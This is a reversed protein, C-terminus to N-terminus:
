GITFKKTASKIVKNNQDPDKVLILMNKEIDPDDLSVGGISEKLYVLKNSISQIPISYSLTEDPAASMVDQYVYIEILPRFKPGSNIMNINVSKVKGWYDSKKETSIQGITLSIDDSTVLGASSSDQSSTNNNSETAAPTESSPEPDQLESGSDSSVEEEGTDTSDSGSVVVTGATDVSVEEEADANGKEDDSSLGSSDSAKTNDGKLLPSYVLLAVVLVAIITLYIMREIVRPRLRITIYDESKGPRVPKQKAAGFKPVDENPEKEPYPDGM